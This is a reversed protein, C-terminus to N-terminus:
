INSVHSHYNINYFIRNNNAIESFSNTSQSVGASNLYHHTGYWVRKHCSGCLFPSITVYEIASDTFEPDMIGELDFDRIVILEM